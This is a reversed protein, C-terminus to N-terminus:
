RPALLDGAREAFSILNGESDHLWARRGRATDTIAGHRTGGPLSFPTFMGGRGEVVHVVRRLDPVNIGMQDHDGSAHGDSPFLLFRSGACAYLFHRPALERAPTLGLKQEYFALARDIDRAPLKTYTQCENLSLEEDM